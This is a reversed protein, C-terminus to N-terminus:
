TRHLFKQKGIKAIPQILELFNGGSPDTWYEGRVCGAAYALFCSYEMNTKTLLSTFSKGFQSDRISNDHSHKKEGLEFLTEFVRKKSWKPNKLLMEDLTQCFEPLILMAFMELEQLKDKMDRCVYRERDGAPLTVPYWAYIFGWGKRDPPSPQQAKLPPFWSYTVRRLHGTHNIKNNPERKTRSSGTGSNGSWGVKGNLSTLDACSFAGVQNSSRVFGKKGNISELLPISFGSLLLAASGIM